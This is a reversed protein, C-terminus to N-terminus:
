AHNSRWQAVWSDRYRLHRAGRYSQDLPAEDTAMAVKLCCCVAIFIHLLQNTQSVPAVTFMSVNWSLMLTAFCWVLWKDSVTKALKGAQVLRAYYLINILLYPILGVLGTTALYGIYINTFDRHEWTFTANNISGPGIGVYGFGFLWHGKMGGGFAEEILGIRYYATGADLALGTLVEYFHRNSFIEIFLLLLVFAGVPLSWFRRIIFCGLLGMTIVFSFLPASSMSSFVGLGLIALCILLKVTNKRDIYPWLAFCMPITASFFLGLAIYNGFSSTARYFGMRMHGAPDVVSLGWNYHQLAFSFVNQGTICEYFSALALPVAILTLGRFFFLLDKKTHMIMRLAFYPFVTDYFVGGRNEIVMRAPAALAYSTSEATFFLLVLFDMLEFRTRRYLKNILIANALVGLIVIRGSSFDISGISVTLPQPYLVLIACFVLWARRPSLILTLLLATFSILLTLNQM